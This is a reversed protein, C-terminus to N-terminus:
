EFRLADVTELRSARYAPILGALVGVVISVISAIILLDYPLVPSLFSLFEVYNPLITATAYVLISCIVFSIVAGIFSLAGAEVIFQLMISSRKAGIAKRIGIEKTRETVSVFMINMIGIVGVLFSLSTIIMGVQWIVMRVTETTREFAKTENISFDEEEHPELGRVLRMQGILEDRVDDLQNLSGAKVGISISRNHRGFAKYLAKVSTFSQNDVFDFMITGKKPIVGIVEFKHGNIKITKGVADRNPFISKAVNYGLVIVKSGIEEEFETFHRGYDIEGASTNAHQHETGIVMLGTYTDSKYKMTTGWQNVSPFMTEALNLGKKLQKYDELTINKRNRVEKWSKAGSWDWKDVYLMDTGIVNFTEQMAADLGSIAWGMMIVFTIGVVVGLSALFSRLKNSRMADFAIKINEGFESIRM